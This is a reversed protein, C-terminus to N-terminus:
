HRPLLLWRCSSSPSFPQAEKESLKEKVWMENVALDPQKFDTFLSVSYASDMLQAFNDVVTQWPVDVYMVQAMQYAPVVHLTISTIVGVAGLGVVIKHFDEHTHVVNLFLGAFAAHLLFFCSQQRMM